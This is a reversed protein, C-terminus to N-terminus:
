RQVFAKEIVYAGPEGSSGETFGQGELMASIEALMGPNGCIMARDSAADLATVDLDRYLRGTTIADTVRGQRYYPERTVTAYYDLKDACLEAFIEHGRLATITRTAFELEAVNRTGYVLIIREFREYTEPDRLLSAFPAFGTGTAFLFLRRGPLLSSLILTGTPKGSLLIEDGPMIHQLRSTLPGDPVKISLFELHDDYKSSTMSYARLLPRGEVELGIM